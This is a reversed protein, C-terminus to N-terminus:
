RPAGGTATEIRLAWGHACPPTARLTAPVDVVMGREGAARWVLPVDSGLLRVETGPAPRVAGIELRAPLADPASKGALLAYRLRGDKSATFYWDGDAHPAAARTSYIAEGNIRLWRGLEALRDYAGDDWRGKADPAVNLLLNGGKAVVEVLTRVLERAPRYQADPVWSWGGGSILCTEWPEAIPEAPVFNEPTLYNQHPGPVARDVVILGPQNRRAEAVLRPMDIDQSQPRGFSRQALLQRRIQEDTLTCVWGGDLWLIDIPGYDGGTLEGIQAHTFEVFRQWREPYRALDYNPNRDPTAFNRWWYADCHWDPKSFYAGVWLGEARFADFIQKTVNARPDDHFACGPGTIRYETQQTDFMCFGDHHKTTFVVYRMGADAAARAWRAPDFADPSFTEPLREYRRVYEAYDDISRRCWDEDEACISWSEVIGWQSYPGWHMLLGLKLDRWRELKALVLPDTEPVYHREPEQACACAASLLAALLVRPRHSRPKVAEIM